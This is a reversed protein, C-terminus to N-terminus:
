CCADSLTALGMAAAAAADMPGLAPSRRAASTKGDKSGGLSAAEVHRPTQLGARYGIVAHAQRAQSSM